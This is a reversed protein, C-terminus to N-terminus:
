LTVQTMLAMYSSPIEGTMPQVFVRAAARICSNPSYNEHLAVAFSVGAFFWYKSMRM